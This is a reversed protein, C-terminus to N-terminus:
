FSQEYKDNTIKTFCLFLALATDDFVRPLFFLM